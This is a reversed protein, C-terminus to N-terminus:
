VPATFLVRQNFAIHVEQWRVGLNQGKNPLRGFLLQEAGEVEAIFGHLPLEAIFKRLRVGDTLAGDATSDNFLTDHM